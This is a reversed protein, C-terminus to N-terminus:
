RRGRSRVLRAKPTAEEVITGVNLRYSQRARPNTVRWRRGNNDQKIRAFREHTKPAHGGTAGFSSRTTSTPARPAPISARGTLAGRAYLEESLLPEGCASVSRTSRWCTPAGTRM